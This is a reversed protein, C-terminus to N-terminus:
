RFNEIMFKVILPYGNKYYLYWFLGGQLILALITVVVTRTLDKRLLNVPLTIEPYYFSQATIKEQMKEQAQVPTRM